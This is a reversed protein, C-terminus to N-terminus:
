ACIFPRLAAREQRDQPGAVHHDGWLQVPHEPGGEVHQAPELLGADPQV